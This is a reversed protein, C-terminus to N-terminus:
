PALPNAYVDDVAREVGISELQVRQGAGAESFEWRGGATRRFVEIRPETQSVLVYEQLTAIRRYHAFKEGRDYAETSDSLVEVLLVPNTAAEADVPSREIHGCIVTIDPYTSLDTEDVRVKADATFTECPRKSIGTRLLWSVRSALRAHELTGGAMAFVEGRLYEHKTTSTRERELYDAYSMRAVLEAHAM